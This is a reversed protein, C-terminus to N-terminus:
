QARDGFLDPGLNAYAKPAKILKFQEQFTISDQARVSSALLVAGILMLFPL